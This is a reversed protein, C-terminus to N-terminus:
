LIESSKDRLHFLSVTDPDVEGYRIFIVIEETFGILYIILISSIFYTTDAFSSIIVLFYVLVANLKLLFTHMMIPKKCRIGSIIFSLIFLTFFVILLYTNPKLYEPYLQSVFWATSVYFFIDAFSDLKKGIETKMNFKRAVWGDFMDTSGVIIYGFLFAIKMDLLIFIVLFPLCVIRSLSLANPINLYEKKM